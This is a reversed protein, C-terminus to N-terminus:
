RIIEPFVGAVAVANSSFTSYLSAIIYNCRGLLYLEVLADILGKDVHVLSSYGSHAITSNYYLIYDPYLTYLFHKLGSNHTTLFRYLHALWLFAYWKVPYPSINTLGIAHDIMKDISSNRSYLHTLNSFGTLVDSTRIHIGIYVYNKWKQYEHDVKSQIMPSPLMIHHYVYHKYMSSFASYSYPSSLSYTHTFGYSQFYKNLHAFSVFYELLNVNTKLLFTQKPTLFLDKYIQYSNM